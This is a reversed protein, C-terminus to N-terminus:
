IVSIVSIIISGIELTRLVVKIGKSRKIKDKVKVLKMKTGMTMRGKITTGVLLIIKKSTLVM